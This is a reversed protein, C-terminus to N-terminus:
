YFTFAQDQGVHANATGSSHVALTTHRGSAQVNRKEFSIAEPLHEASQRRRINKDSIIHVGPQVALMLETSCDPCGVHDPIVNPCADASAQYDVAFNVKPGAAARAIDAIVQKM